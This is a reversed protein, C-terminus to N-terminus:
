LLRSLLILVEAYSVCIFCTFFRNLKSKRMLLANNTRIYYLFLFVLASIFPLGISFRLRAFSFPNSKGEQDYDVEHTASFVSHSDNLFKTTSDMVVKHTDLVEEELM